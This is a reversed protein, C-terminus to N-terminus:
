TSKSIRAVDSSKWKTVGGKYAWCFTRFLAAAGDAAHDGIVTVDINFM